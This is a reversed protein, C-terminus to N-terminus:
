DDAAGLRWDADELVDRGSPTPRYGGNVGQRSDVLELGVLVGIANRVTGTSRGLVEGVEEATAFRGDTDDAARIVAALLDKQSGTLQVM